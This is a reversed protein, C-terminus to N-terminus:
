DFVLPGATQSDIRVYCFTGAPIWLGKRYDENDSTIRSTMGPTTRTQYDVGLPCADTRVQNRKLALLPLRASTPAARHHSAM